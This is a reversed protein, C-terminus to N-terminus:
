FLSDDLLMKQQLLATQAAKRQVLKHKKADSDGMKSADHAAMTYAISFNSACNQMLKKHAHDAMEHSELIRFAPVELGKQTIFYGESELRAKLLLFPGLFKW